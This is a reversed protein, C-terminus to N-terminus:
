WKLDYQNEPKRFLQGSYGGLKIIVMQIWVNYYQIIFKEKMM